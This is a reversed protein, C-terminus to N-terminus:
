VFKQVPDSLRTSGTMNSLLDILCNWYYKAKYSIESTMNSLLVISFETMQSQRRKQKQLLTSKLGQLVTLIMLNFRVKFRLLVKFRTPRM